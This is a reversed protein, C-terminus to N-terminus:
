RGRARQRPRIARVPIAARAAINWSARRRFQAHRFAWAPCRGQPLLSRHLLCRPPMQQQWLSASLGIPTDTDLIGIDGSRKNRVSPCTYCPCFAQGDRPLPSAASSNLWGQSPPRRPRKCATASTIGFASPRNPAPKFTDLKHILREAHVWCLAHDAVRFEAM